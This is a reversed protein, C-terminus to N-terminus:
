VRKTLSNDERWCCVPVPIRVDSKDEKICENPTVVSLNPYQM